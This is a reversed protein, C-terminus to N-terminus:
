NLKVVQTKSLKVLKWKLGEQFTLTRSSEIENQMELAMTKYKAALESNKEM